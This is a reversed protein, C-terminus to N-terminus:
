KAVAAAGGPVGGPGNNGTDQDDDDESCKKKNRADEEEALKRNKRRKRKKAENKIKNMIQMEEETYELDDEDSTLNSLDRSGSRQNVEVPPHNQDAATAPQPIATAVFTNANDADSPAHTVTYSDVARESDHHSINSM